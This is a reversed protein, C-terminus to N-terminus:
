LQWQDVVVVIVNGGVIAIVVVANTQNLSVCFVIYFLSSLSIQLKEIEWIARDLKRKKEKKKKKKKKEKGKRKKKMLVEVEVKVSLFFFHRVVVILLLVIAFFIWQLQIANIEGLFCRVGFEVRHNAPLVLRTEHHL